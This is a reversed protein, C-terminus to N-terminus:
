KIGRFKLRRMQLIYIIAVIERTWQSSQIFSCMYVGQCTPLMWYINIGGKGVSVTSCPLQISSNMILQLCRPINMFPIGVTSLHIFLCFDM